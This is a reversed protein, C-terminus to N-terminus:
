PEPQLAILSQAVREVAERITACCVEYVEVPKGIPDPINAEREGSPQSLGFRALLHAKGSATPVRRLMEDVHFQEMALILDAQRIMEDTLTKTLHDSRDIGERQLLTVTERSAPMGDAACLGASDVDIPESLRPALQKLRHELLGEAMVSRCSNGTCVFLVRKAGM